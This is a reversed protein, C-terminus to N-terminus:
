PNADPGAKLRAWLTALKGRPNVATSYHRTLIRGKYGGAWLSQTVPHYGIYNFTGSGEWELKWTDGNDTSHLIGKRTERFNTPSPGLGAVWVGTEDAYVAEYHGSLQQRWTQGGDATFWVGGWAVAWGRAADVFDIQTIFIERNEAPKGGGLPSLPYKVLEWTTGSDATYYIWGAISAVWGVQPSAFDLDRPARLALHLGSHGIHITRYVHVQCKWSQGGDRTTCLFNGALPEGVLWLTIPNIRRRWDGTHGVYWGHMEDAFFLRSGQSRLNAHIPGEPVEDGIRVVETVKGSHKQWTLGGDMTKYLQIDQLLGPWSGYRQPAQRWGVTPSIFHIPYGLLDHTPEGPQWSMGGDSTRLFVDSLKWIRRDEVDVVVGPGKTEAWGHDADIFHILEVGNVAGEIVPPYVEVWRSSAGVHPFVFTCALLLAFAATVSTPSNPFRSKQMRMAPKKRLPIPSTM